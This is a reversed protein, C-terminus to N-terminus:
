AGVARGYANAAQYTTRRDGFVSGPPFYNNQIVTRTEGGSVGPAPQDGTGSVFQSQLAVRGMVAPPLTPSQVQTTGGTPTNDNATAGWGTATVTRMTGSGGEGYIGIRLAQHGQSYLPDLATKQADTNQDVSKKLENLATELKLSAIQQAKGPSLGQKIMDQRDFEAQMRAKQEEDSVQSLALAHQAALLQQEVPKNAVERRAGEITETLGTTNPPMGGLRRFDEMLRRAITSGSSELSQLEQLPADFIGKIKTGKYGGSIGPDWQQQQQQQEQQQIQMLRQANQAQLNAATAAAVAAAAQEDAGERIAQNYAQQIRVNQENIGMLQGAYQGLQAMDAMQARILRTSENLSVVQREANANASAQANALQQAAIEGALLADVGQRVLQSYTAAAEAAMRQAGTVAASAAAQDRLSALTQRANTNIQAQANATQQAAVKAALETSVGQRVLQNYNAQEQAQLRAAGTVASVVAYEERLTQLQQEAATNIQAQAVAREKAAFAMALELTKGELLLQNIRAQEEAAMRAVGPMAQAIRLQDDLHAMRIADQAVMGPYEAKIAQIAALQRDYTGPAVQSMEAQSQKLALLEGRMADIQAKGEPGVKNYALGIELAKQAVQDEVTTLNGLIGTLTQLEALQAKPEIKGTTTVQGAPATQAVKTGIQDEIKKLEDIKRQIQAAWEQELKSGEYNKSQEQMNQIQELLKAQASYLGDLSENAKTSGSILSSFWKVIAEDIELGTKKIQLFWGGIAGFVKNQLNSQLDDVDEKLKTLEDIKGQDLGRSQYRETTAGIDLGMMMPLLSMGTKGFAAKQLRARDFENGARRLAETVLNLAETDNAATLALEGLAPDIKRIMELINGGGERTEEFGSTFKLLGAHLEDVSIGFKAAEKNLGQVQSTTLGTAEAFHKTDQAYQATKSVGEDLKQYALYLGGIGVAAAVGGKGLTSLVGGLLATSASAAQAQAAMAQMGVGFATQQTSAERVTALQAQYKATLSQTVAAAREALAPNQALAANITRMGREYEATARAGEVYRRELGTFARDLNLSSQGLSTEAAELKKMEAVAAESGQQEFIMRLRAIAEQTTIM